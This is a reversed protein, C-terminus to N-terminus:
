KESLLKSFNKSFFLKEKTLRKFNGTFIFCNSKGYLIKNCYRFNPKQQNYFLESIRNDNHDLTEGYKPLVFVLIFVLVLLKINTLNM